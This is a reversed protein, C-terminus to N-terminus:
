VTDPPGVDDTGFDIGGKTRPKAQAVLIQELLQPLTAPLEISDCTAITDRTSGGDM